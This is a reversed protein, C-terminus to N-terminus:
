ITMKYFGASCSSPGGGTGTTVDCDAVTVAYHGAPCGSTINALYMGASCNVPEPCDTCGTNGTGAAYTGPSCGTCGTNGLGTAFTGAACGPCVSALGVTSSATGAACDTCGINGTGIAFTGALCDACSSQGTSPQYTGASCAPCVSDRGITNSATGVACDTCASANALAYQGVSCTDCRRNTTSYYRGGSPCVCGTDTHNARYPYNCSGDKPICYESLKSALTDKLDAGARRGHLIGGGSLSFCLYLILRSSKYNM